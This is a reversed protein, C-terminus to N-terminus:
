TTKSLGKIKIDYNIIIIIKVIDIQSVVKVIQKLRNKMNMPKRKQTWKM